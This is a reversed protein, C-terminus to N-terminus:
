GFIIGLNFGYGMKQQTNLEDLFEEIEKNSCDSCEKDLNTFLIVGGISILFGGLTPKPYDLKSINKNNSKTSQVKLEEKPEVVITGDELILSHIEDLSYQLILSNTTGGYMEVQFYGRSTTKIYKTNLTDGNKLILTDNQAFLSGIMLLLLIKKM